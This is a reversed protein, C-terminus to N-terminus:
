NEAALDDVQTDQKKPFFQRLVKWMPRLARRAEPTFVGGNVFAPSTVVVFDDTEGFYLPISWSYVSEKEIAKLIEPKESQRYFCLPILANLAKSGKHADPFQLSVNTNVAVIQFVPKELGHPVFNTKDGQHVTFTWGPPLHARLERLIGPEVNKSDGAFVISLSFWLSLALFTLGSRNLIDNM